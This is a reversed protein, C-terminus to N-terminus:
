KPLVTQIDHPMDNIKTNYFEQLTKIKGEDDKTVFNIATGKRGYRGSRGIRHIYAEKYFPMDYNIVMSVQQVDIGRSLLDTSILVRSAGKRFDKMTNSRDASSMKGHIIAITFGDKKLDAALIEARDVSSVYIITQNVSLLKFIDCLTGFKYRNHDVFIKYQSIGELTLEEKKVHIKMHDEHLFKLSYENMYDTLTASFLCIQATKPFAVIITRIQEIFGPSILEDAEDIILLSLYKPNIFSKTIMDAIRGPTGIVLKPTKARLKDKADNIDTQGVCLIPIIGTFKGINECVTFIQEALERTPAIIIAQCENLNPDFRQLCGIVFTGTKGTGSQAQAVMDHKDIIPKIARAQIESPTEFGYAYIGRLLNDNLGLHEFNDIREQKNDTM